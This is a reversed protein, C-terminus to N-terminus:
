LSRAVILAAGAAVADELGAVPLDKGGTAKVLRARFEYGGLTGAVGGLAGAVMGAAVARDPAGLAAGCLAGTALRVAFPLPEKRSPTHPLKDNIVELIALASLVYPTAAYGLFALRTNKLNLRGRRAAWSVAAIPTMSRLGTAVGALFPMTHKPLVTTMQM